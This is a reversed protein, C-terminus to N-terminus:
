NFHEGTQEEDQLISCPSISTLHNPVDALLPVNQLVLQANLPNLEM